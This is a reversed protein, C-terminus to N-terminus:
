HTGCFGLRGAIVGHRIENKQLLNMGLYKSNYAIQTYYHCAHTNM